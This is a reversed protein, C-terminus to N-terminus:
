LRNGHLGGCVSPLVNENYYSLPGFVSYYILLDMVLLIRSTLNDTEATMDMDMDM